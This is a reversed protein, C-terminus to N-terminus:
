NSIKKKDITYLEGQKNKSDSGIIFEGKEPAIKMKIQYKNLFSIKNLIQNFSINKACFIIENISDINISKIIEDNLEVSKKKSNTNNFYIHKIYTKNDLNRNVLKKIRLFQSKDGIIAIKKIKAKFNSLGISSM